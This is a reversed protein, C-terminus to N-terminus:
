RRRLHILGFMSWHNPWTSLRSELKRWIDFTANLDPGTWVTEECERELIMENEAVTYEDYAAVRLGLLPAPLHELPEKAHLAHLNKQSLSSIIACDSGRTTNRITTNAKSAAM